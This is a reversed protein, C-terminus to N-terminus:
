SNKWNILNALANYYTYINLKTVGVIKTLNSNLSNLYTNQFFFIDRLQM